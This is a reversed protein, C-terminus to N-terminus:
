RSERYRVTVRLWPVRTCTAKSATIGSQDRGWLGEESAIIQKSRRTLAAERRAVMQTGKALTELSLPAQSLPSTLLQTWNPLRHTGHPDACSM